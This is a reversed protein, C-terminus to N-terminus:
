GFFHIRSFTNFNIITIYNYVIVRRNEEIGYCLNSTCSFYLYVFVACSFLYVFVATFEVISYKPFSSDFFIEPLLKFNKSGSEVFHRDQLITYAMIHAFDSKGVIFETQSFTQNVM